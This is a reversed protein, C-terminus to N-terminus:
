RLRDAPGATGAADGAHHGAEAPGATGAADGAHHGVETPGVTDAAYSAHHGAEAPGVTGAAVRGGTARSMADSARFNDSFRESPMVCRRSTRQRRAFIIKPCPGILQQPLFRSTPYTLAKPTTRCANLRFRVRRVASPGRRLTEIGIWRIAQHSSTRQVSASSRISM